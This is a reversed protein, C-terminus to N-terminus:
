GILLADSWKHEEIVKAGDFNFGAVIEVNPRMRMDAEGGDSIQEFTGHDVAITKAVCLPDLGARNVPHRRPSTNHM